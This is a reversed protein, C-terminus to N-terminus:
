GQPSVLTLAAALSAVAAHPPGGCLWERLAAGGTDARQAAAVLDGMSPLPRRPGGSPAQLRGLHVALRELWLTRWRYADDSGALAYAGTATALAYGEPPLLERLRAPALAGEQIDGALQRAETSSDERYEREDALYAIRGAYARNEPLALLANLSEPGDHGRPAVLLRAAQFLASLAADRDTYYRPDLIQVVKDFGVVIALDGSPDILRRLLRGQDVYLGRNVLVVAARTDQRAYALLQALRDVLSARAVREKDVSVAACTWAIADLGATTRAAEALAVHARTLPNFSGALVGVRAARKIAPRGGLVRAEETAAGAVQEAVRALVVLRRTDELASRAAALRPAWAEENPSGM